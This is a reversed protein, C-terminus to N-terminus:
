KFFDKIKNNTGNVGGAQEEDQDLSPNSTESSGQIEEEPNVAGLVPEPEMNEAVMGEM